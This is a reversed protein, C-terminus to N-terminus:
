KRRYLRVTDLLDRQVGIKKAAEPGLIEGTIGISEYRDLLSRLGTHIAHSAAPNLGDYNERKGGLDRSLPPNMWAREQAILYDPPNARLAAVAEEANAATIFDGATSDVRSPNRCDLLDYFVPMNGYVFCTSGPRVNDILWALAAKRPASIRMGRMMPHAISSRNERLTGDLSDMQGFPNVRARYLVTFHVVGAFAFAACVLLKARAPLRASALSVVIAGCVLSPADGWGRGPFSMELAFDLALPLAGLAVAVIPELGLWRRLRDPVLVAFAVVVTLFTRPVDSLFNLLAYRMLLGALLACPIVLLALTGASIEGPRSGAYIALGAIAAPLGLFVLFGSWWSFGHEVLAGGSIADLVAAFGHIGKKAPGDLVLQQIADGLTGQTALAVGLLVLGAAFGGWLAAFRRLTFYERRALLLATVVFGVVGSMIAASQRASAILAISAGALALYVLVRRGEARWALVFWLGSLTCFLQAYGTSWHHSQGAFLTDLAAWVALLAAAPWGALRRVLAWTVFVRAITLAMAAYLSSLHREGFVSQFAADVYIPLPGVQFIFDRYPVDGHAVRRGFHFYWTPDDFCMGHRVFHWHTGVVFVAIALLAVVDIPIRRASARM